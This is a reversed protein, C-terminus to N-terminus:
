INSKGTKTLDFYKIGYVFFMIASTALPIGMTVYLISLYRISILGSTRLFIGLSMMLVMLIYSNWNFFSFACPKDHKIAFIRESHKKFIKSFMFIYFVVGLPIATLLKWWIENPYALLMNIGKGLLMGGAFSWVCGAILMLYRKPVSPKLKKIISNLKFYM